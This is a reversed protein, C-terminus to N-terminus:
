FHEIDNVPGIGDRKKKYLIKRISDIQKGVPKGGAQDIKFYYGTPSVLDQAPNFFM